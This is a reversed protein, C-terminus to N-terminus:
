KIVEYDHGNIWKHFAKGTSEHSSFVYYEDKDVGFYKYVSKNKFTIILEETKFNYVSSKINSSDYTCTETLKM